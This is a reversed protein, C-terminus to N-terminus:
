QDVAPLPEEGGAGAGASDDKYIPHSTQQHQCAVLDIHISGGNEDTMLTYCNYQTYETYKFLTFYHKGAM